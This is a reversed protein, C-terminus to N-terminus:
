SEIKKIVDSKPVCMYTYAGQYLQYMDGREEMRTIVHERYFENCTFKDIFYRERILVKM